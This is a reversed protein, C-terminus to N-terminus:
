FQQAHYPLALDDVLSISTWNMLSVNVRTCLSNCHLVGSQCTQLCTRIYACGIHAALWGVPQWSENRPDSLDVREISSARVRVQTHTDSRLVYM